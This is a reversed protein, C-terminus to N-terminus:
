KGWRGWQERAERGDDEGRHKADNQAYPQQPQESQDQTARHALGGVAFASMALTLAAVAIAKM